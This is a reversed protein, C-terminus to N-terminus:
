NLLKIDHKKLIADAKDAGLTEKAMEYVAEALKQHKEYQQWIAGNHLQVFGTVNMMMNPTGDEERGVLEAEALAEHNYRVHKDFQSAIVGNGHTLDFARVLEADEYTDFTGINGSGSSANSHIAGNGKIIFASSTYNNVVFLNAADPSAQNAAGDNDADNLKNVFLKIAGNASASTTTNIEGEKNNYLAVLVLTENGQESLADMRVGGKTAQAKKINFYTDSEAENTIEHDIDSSKFSLIKSDGAGQNLTIGHIGADPAADNASFVGGSTFRHLITGGTAFQMSNNSHDYEIQGSYAASGSTGDAFALGGANSTGSVITIGENGSGSGVVLNGRGNLTNYEQTGNILVDGASNISLRTASNTNDFLNLGGSSSFISHKVTGGTAFRLASDGNSDIQIAAGTGEVELLEAPADTGIGVKNTGGNVFLMTANDNSEVRFNIDQSDDNFMIDTDFVKMISRQTGGIMMNVDLRGDETGDSADSITSFIRAYEVDQSNDNRGTFGIDGITDGDAPSGSNRYLKLNPGSSGDADTSTLTLTDTNDATTITTGDNITFTTATITAMTNGGAEIVLTDDTNASISTDLDDDFDIKNNVGDIQIGAM